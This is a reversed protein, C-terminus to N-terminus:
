ESQSNPKSKFMGILFLVLGAIGLLFGLPLSVNMLLLWAGHSTTEDMEDQGGFIGAILATILPLSAFITCGVMSWLGLTMLRNFKM